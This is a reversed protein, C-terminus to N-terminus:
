EPNQICQYNKRTATDVVFQDEFLHCIKGQSSDCMRWMKACGCAVDSSLPIISLLKSFYYWQSSLCPVPCKPQLSGAAGVNGHIKFCLAKYKCSDQDWAVSSIRIAGCDPPPWIFSAGKLFLLFMHRSTCLKYHQGFTFEVEYGGFWLSLTLQLWM